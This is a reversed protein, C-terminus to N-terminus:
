QDIYCQNNYRKLNAHKYCRITRQSRLYQQEKKFVGQIQVFLSYYITEHSVRNNDENPYEIKVWGLIQEPSCNLQLKTAVTRSLPLNCAFEFRKPRHGAGM